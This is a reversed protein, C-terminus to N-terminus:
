EAHNSPLAGSRAPGQTCARELGPQLLRYKPITSQGQTFRMHRADQVRTLAGWNGLVQLAGLCAGGARLHPLDRQGAFM